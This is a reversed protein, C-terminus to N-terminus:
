DINLIIGSSSFNSIMGKVELFRVRVDVDRDNLVLEDLVNQEEKTMSYAWMDEVLKHQADHRQVIIEGLMGRSSFGDEQVFKLDKLFGDFLSIATFGAAIALSSALSRRWNRIVNRIAIRRCTQFPVAM